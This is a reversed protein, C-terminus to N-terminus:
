SFRVLFNVSFSPLISICEISKKFLALELWFKLYTFILWTTSLLNYLTPTTLPKDLCWSSYSTHVHPM